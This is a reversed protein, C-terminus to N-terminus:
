DARRTRHEWARKGEEIWPRSPMPSTRKVPPLQWENAYARRAHASMNPSSSHFIRCDHFVAAGANVPVAVALRSDVDDTVLAHVTPDNGVHRHERVDGLHSGPIFSMCGNEPTAADLPMWCGLATYEFAPDWNAEDQHWPLAEGVHPPKRIMHGWGRLASAEVGLFMAALLRGNRWFATRRLEPLRVEPVIIQAL